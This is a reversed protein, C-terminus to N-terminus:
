RSRTILPILGVKSKCGGKKNAQLREHYKITNSILVYEAVIEM